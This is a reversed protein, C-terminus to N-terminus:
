GAKSSYVWRAVNKKREHNQVESAGLHRNLARAVARRSPDFDHVSPSHRMVFCWNLKGATGWIEGSVKYVPLLYIVNNEVSLNVQHFKLIVSTLSSM